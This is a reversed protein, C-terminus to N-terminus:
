IRKLHDFVDLCDPYQKRYECSTLPTTNQCERLDRAKPFNKTLLAATKLIALFENDELVHNQKDLRDINVLFKDKEKDESDKLARINEVMECLGLYNPHNKEFRHLKQMTSEFIDREKAHYCNSVLKKLEIEDNDHYEATHVHLTHNRRGAIINRIARLM